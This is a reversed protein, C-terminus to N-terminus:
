IESAKYNYIPTIQEIIEVTPKICEKIEEIPKYAQPAEDITSICVSSSYINNMSKKYEELSIMEKAKKRSMLRGAGHPASCNWEENGLGKCILSGDKMNIPILVIEEKKASIAGKRIIDNELDIYNHLTEFSYLEEGDVIFKDNEIKVNGFIEKVIELAMRQRSLHAYKHCVKIDDLYEEKDKNELYCFEKEIASDKAEKEATKLTKQIEKERGEDKLKKILFNREKLSLKGGHCHKIAKDTYIKAVQNGLNRSGSHIVLYKNNDKDIDIEIFHNGGGLTGVGNKVQKNFSLEHFCHMNEINEFLIKINEDLEITDHVNYGSPINNKIVEDIKKFNIEVNGLKVLLMGCYLDVGVINPIIKDGITSTFGIVCGNGSHVDPMIRIKQNKFSEQEMLREIQEVAKSEITKAFIKLNKM